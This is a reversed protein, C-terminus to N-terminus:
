PVLTQMRQREEAAKVMAARLVAPSPNHAGPGKGGLRGASPADFGQGTGAIGKTMLEDLEVNLEHYLKWFPEKHHQHVIHSMEHLLTGLIFDFDYFVSNQTPRRLRLRIAGTGSGSEYQNVGLLGPNRPSFEALVPVSWKHRIMIPQVQHAAKKLLAMAEESGQQKLVTIRAFNYHDRKQAAM